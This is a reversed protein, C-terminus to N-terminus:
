RRRMPRVLPLMRWLVEDRDLFQHKLAGAVHLGLLGIMAWAAAGHVESLAEAVDKADHRDLDRLVPLHPLPIVDWILTPIKLPSASVIAWGVLPMGILLLYFGVHTARAFLKEWRAMHAPLPPAPHTLRWVLRLLSLALITMGVSKHLQFLEFKQLGDHLDSMVWGLPIQLAILAAISWHLLISVASYRGGERRAEHTASM